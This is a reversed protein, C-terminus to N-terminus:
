GGGSIPELRARDALTSLARTGGVRVWTSTSSPGAKGNNASTPPPRVVRPRPPQPTLAHWALASARLHALRRGSAVAAVHRIPVPCWPLVYLPILPLLRRLRNPKPPCHSQCDSFPHRRHSSSSPFIFALHMMWSRVRAQIRLERAAIPYLRM